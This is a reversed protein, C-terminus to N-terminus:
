DNENDWRKAAAKACRTSCVNSKKSVHKGCGLCRGQAEIPRVRIGPNKTKGFM